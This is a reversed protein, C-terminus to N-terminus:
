PLEYVVASFLQRLLLMQTNPVEKVEFMSLSKSLGLRLTLCFDFCCFGGQALPDAILTQRFNCWGPYVWAPPKYLVLFKEITVNGLFVQEKNTLSDRYFMANTHPINKRSLFCKRDCLLVTEGEGWRRSGSFKELNNWSGQWEDCFISISISFKITMQALIQLQWLDFYWFSLDGMDWCGYSISRENKRKQFSSLFRSYLLPRWNGM